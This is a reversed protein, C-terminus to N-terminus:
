HNQNCEEIDKEIRTRGSRTVYIKVGDKDNLCLTFHGQQNTFGSPEFQLIDNQELTSHWFLRYYKSQPYVQFIQQTAINMVLQGQNWQGDCHKQDSSGCFVISNSQKLATQQTFHVATAIQDSYVQTRNYQILAKLSPTISLFLIIVVSLTIFIELLSFGQNKFNM